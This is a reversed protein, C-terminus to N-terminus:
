CALRRFSVDLAGGGGCDRSYIFCFYRCCFLVKLALLHVSVSAIGISFSVYEWSSCWHVLTGRVGWQFVSMPNLRCSPLGTMRSRCSVQLRWFSTWSRACAIANTMLKKLNKVILTRKTSPSRSRFFWTLTLYQSWFSDLQVSYILTSQFTVPM